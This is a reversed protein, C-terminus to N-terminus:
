HHLKLFSLVLKNSYNLCQLFNAKQLHVDFVIKFDGFKCDFFVSPLIGTQTLTIVLKWFDADLSYFWRKTEIM